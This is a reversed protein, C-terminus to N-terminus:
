GSCLCRNRRPGCGRGALRDDLEGEVVLLPGPVLGQDVREVLAMGADLDPHDGDVLVQLQPWLLTPPGVVSPHTQGRRGVHDLQSRSTRLGTRAEDEVQRGQDFLSGPQLIEVEARQSGALIAVTVEARNPEMEPEETAFTTAVPVNVMGMIFRIPNRGLTAPAMSAMAEVPPCNMGGIMPAPAKIIASM